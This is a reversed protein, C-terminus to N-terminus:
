KWTDEGIGRSVEWGEGGKFQHQSAFCREIAAEEWGEWGEWGLFSQSMRAPMLARPHTHARAYALFLSPLSPLNPVGNHWLPKHNGVKATLNPFLSPVLRSSRLNFVLM